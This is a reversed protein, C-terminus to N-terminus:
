GRLARQWAVQAAIGEELGVAPQWGILNRAKEISGGTRGVDGAQAGRRELNVPSGTAREVATLLESVTTSGGGAVNLVTGPPLDATAAKINAAVVDGVYTFDRIQSGDGYLPFPSGQLASDIMRYIAMDPRQRPGYVTFYRLATVPVGHNDAYARCLLEAALKTVGYPSHPTTADGERTPYSAANGYVSSSSAFVFRDIGKTGAAAILRHTVDINLSSYSPFDSWSMRVGPQGALHFVIGVGDLMHSLDCTLLDAVYTECNPYQELDALQKSKLTPDYYDTLADVARVSWRTELLAETLSSGIFGGAGTVLATM